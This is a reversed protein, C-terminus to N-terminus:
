GRHRLTASTYDLTHAQQALTLLAAPIFVMAQPVLFLRSEAMVAGLAHVVLWIPVIVWFFVQLQYPWKRYGILAVIPIISLTAVLQLWTIFRFLNYQLMDLGRSHGYPLLEEQHSYFIRLGFFVAIYALFAMAFVPIVKGSSERPQGFMVASILLFPILGSTERNFAGLITIPIIWVFKKELICLGALLFFIIDLFTSFQLDSDYHSHSMGWALLAMGVLAYVFSLGLKRNYIYFLLLIVTDLFVRFVIFSVAIHRPIHLRELCKIIPNIMYPALVRHQWPIGAHGELVSQHRKIQYGQDLYDLGRARVYQYTTFLGLLFAIAMILSILGIRRHGTNNTPPSM